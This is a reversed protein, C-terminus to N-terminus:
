EAGCVSREENTVMVAILLESAELVPDVLQRRALAAVIEMEGVAATTSDAFSRWNVAVTLPEVSVATWQLVDEDRPLMSAFPNNVAAAVDLIRLTFTTATASASEVFNAVLVIVTTGVDYPPV